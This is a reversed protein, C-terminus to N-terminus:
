APRAVAALRVWAAVDLEEPRASPAVGAAAFAAEDVRDGITRRLMKRRQGFAVDLLSRVAAFTAPDAAPADHREVALLASQVRPEPVFVTPPVRGVIRARAFWALKVSPLGYTRSGPPAALREAVELQVMVLMRRIAPVGALLDLVIGTALNYPLNAVLTWPPDGVDPGGGLLAAWDLATADATVLRADSGSLVEALVAAVRRDVEIATVDAGTELLALTLSGVGAGIEVVRDGPGVGALRAIRRVTNPDAVYNQGLARGLVIGHRDLLDVLASRSHTM